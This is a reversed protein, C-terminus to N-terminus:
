VHAAVRWVKVTHKQRENPFRDADATEDVSEFVNRVTAFKSVLSSWRNATKRSMCTIMIQSGYVDIRRAPIGAEALKAKMREQLTAM